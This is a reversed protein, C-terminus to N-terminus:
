LLCWLATSCESGTEVHLVTPCTAGQDTLGQPQPVLFSVESQVAVYKKEAETEGLPLPPAALM